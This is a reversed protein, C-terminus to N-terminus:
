AAPALSAATEACRELVFRLAGCVESLNAVAYPGVHRTLERGDPRLVGFEWTRGTTVVGWVPVAPEGNYRRAALMAALCQAWGAEFNERKAEMAMLVPRGPVSTGLPSRRSVMYDPVGTLPEEGPFPEHASLVLTEAFPRYVEMLIPAILMECAGFESGFRVFRLATDIHDRLAQSVPRQAPTVLADERVAVGFRTMVEALSQFENFPM